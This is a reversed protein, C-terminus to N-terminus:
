WSNFCRTTGKMLVGFSPRSFAQPFRSPDEHARVAFRELSVKALLDVPRETAGLAEHRHSVTGEHPAVESLDLRSIRQHFHEKQRTAVRQDETAAAEVAVRGGHGIATDVTSRKSRM